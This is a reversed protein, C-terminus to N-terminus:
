KNSIGQDVHKFSFMAVDAKERRLTLEVKDLASDETLTISDVLKGTIPLEEGVATGDQYRLYYGYKGEVVVRTVVFGSSSFAFTVRTNKHDSYDQYFTRVADIHYTKNPTSVTIGMETLKDSDDKAPLIHAELENVFEQALEDMRERTAVDIDTDSSSCAALGVVLLVAWLLVVAQRMMRKM